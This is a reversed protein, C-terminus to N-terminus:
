AKPTFTTVRRYETESGPGKSKGADDSKVVILRNSAVSFTLEEKSTSEFSLFVLASGKIVRSVTAALPLNEPSLWIQAIHSNDKLKVKDTDPGPMNVLIEIMRAPKGNYADMREGRLTANNLYQLLSPAYNITNSVKEASTQSFMVGPGMKKKKEKAMFTEEVARKILSRDWRIAMGGADDDILAAISATETKAPKADLDTRTEKVEFTGRLTGAGQLPALAVKLDDLGNAYASQTLLLALLAAFKM